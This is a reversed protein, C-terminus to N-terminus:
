KHSKSQLFVKLGVKDNLGKFALIISLAAFIAGIIYKSLGSLYLVSILCLSVLVLQILFSVIFSNTFCFSYRRRSILYCQWFYIFYNVAFAIGMGTLGGWRYGVLSLWLYNINGILENIIFLKSEAKAVFMYSVLWSALRFMMGLCAWKIFGDALLFEDSYLIKIVTPMLLICLSLLPALLFVSIEGQKSVVDRCKVDDKNVAALRPYYDTAIAGFVLGVYSNIIVFGAQFLGVEDIGGWDRILSRVAYGVGMTMVGSLSMSVGMVMMIKGDKIVDKATVITKQIQVRRSYFWSVVLSVISTLVMAPVIGDVNWIYYLPVSILLSITAGIATVKALEKLRRMGQLVVKQGAILQDLLLIVSLCIFSLIYKNNGFSTKSFVPSLALLAVVGLSGTFWVIKRLVTVTRSIKDIYGTGNAEAVDRVASQAIGLSTAQKVLDIAAQFLGQIGVGLPGLLVAIIKSKIVQILITYVQVGGFLSTAKFISRYSSTQSAQATQQIDKSEESM